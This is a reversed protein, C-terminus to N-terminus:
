LRPLRQLRRADCMDLALLGGIVDIRPRGDNKKNRPAVSEHM